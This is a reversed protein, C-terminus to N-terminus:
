RPPSEMMSEHDRWSEFIWCCRNGGGLRRGDNQCRCAHRSGCQQSRGPHWDDDIGSGDVLRLDLGRQLRRTSASRDDGLRQGLEFRLLHRPAAAGSEHDTGILNQLAFTDDEILWRIEAVRTMLQSRETTPLVLEQASDDDYAIPLTQPM